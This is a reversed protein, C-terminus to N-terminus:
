PSAATHSRCPLPPASRRPRTPASARRPPAIRFHRALTQTAAPYPLPHPSPRCPWNFAPTSAEAHPGLPLLEGPIEPLLQASSFFPSPSLFLTSAHSRDPLPLFSSLLSRARPEPQPVPFAPGARGLCPPSLLSPGSPSSPSLHTPRRPGHPLFSVSSLAPGPWLPKPQKREKKKERKEKRYEFM